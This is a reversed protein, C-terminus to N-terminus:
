SSDVEPLTMHERQNTVRNIRISSIDINHNPLRFDFRMDKYIKRYRITQAPLVEFIQIKPDLITIM